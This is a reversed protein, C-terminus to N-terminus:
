GGRGNEREHKEKCVGRIWDKIIPIAINEIFIMFFVGLIFWFWWDFELTM